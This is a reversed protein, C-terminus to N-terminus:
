LLVTVTLDRGTEVGGGSGVSLIDVNLKSGAPLVPLAGSLPDSGTQGGQITLEALPSGDATLRVVVPSGQPAVLITAQVDRVVKPETVLVPPVCNSRVALQGPVQLTYQGGSLVKLGRDTTSTFHLAATPSNGMSNTVYLEAAAIRWTGASVPWMFASSASSAFFQKPFATIAINRALLEVMAGAAHGAIPTGLKGRDVQYHRSGDVSLVQVLEQDVQLMDGVVFEADSQLELVEDAPAFGLNLQPCTGATLEDWYYLILTGAQISETNELSDFGIGSVEVSQAQGAKVSFTPKPPIDGDAEGGASGGITWRAVFCRAPDCEVDEFNASRGVIQIVSGRRNPATFRIDSTNTTGAFQWGAEVVAFRSGADLGVTWPQAVTITQGSNSLIRVEQGAGRGETIRVIYGKLADDPLGIASASVWDPGSSEVSVPPVIEMRSYFNAHDYNEDPPVDGMPTDGADTVETSLTDSEAVSVLTAPSDGRYLRFGRYGGPFWMGSLTVTYGGPASPTEVTVVFSLGSEDGNGAIGSVAYYYIRGPELSGGDTITPIMSVLPRRWAEGSPRKPPTFNVHLMVQGGGDTGIIEEEEIGFGPKGDQDILTPVLPRPIGNGVGGRRPESSLGGSPSGLEDYWADEHKQAQISVTQYDFTPQVSLVRFPTRDFGEKGYTIAIIDGPRIALGRVSTALEIFRNGNVSRALQFKVVRLAQECTPIGLAPLPASIEYGVRIADDVDVLSISDQQYGNFADQFEVSYRNPTEATPNSWMRLTPGGGPRKLIGSTGDTGDGFEYAPWGGSLTTTSNSGAPKAAHQARLTGEAALELRGDQGLRLLLGATARIGRLVEAVTRRRALVLNVEFRPVSVTEQNLNLVEILEDCVSAARVFSGLDIEHLTWGTRRLIDLMIWAPNRSFLEAIPGDDSFTPVRLGDLLVQIKPQSSGSVVRNPVVISLFAMGGYPDGGPTGDAATFDLNFGGNRNGYSCVNYWGTSTMDAGSIGLPMEVDNVVVRRVGEIPGTGLLVELHLLNGDNRSFVISPKHWATGYILPVFDNYKTASASSESVHQTKDGYSRVLISAPVFEIGGFRRTENGVRDRDFMGREMCSKRTGDCSTFPQDVALNGVGGEVDPSYGCRYFPSYKEQAAGDLALQREEPTRPFLWPCRAQVRVQPLLSRSFELRSRFTLTMTSETIEVPPDATGTYVATPATVAQDTVLDYFVFRALLKAGKWGLVSEVESFHSDLNDLSLTLTSRSEASDGAARMEFRSQDLVRPEYVEGEVVVRHSAWRETRGDALTCDFALIPTPLEVQEKTLFIDQM